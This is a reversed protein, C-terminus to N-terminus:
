YRRGYDPSPRNPDDRTYDVPRYDAYSDAETGAEAQPVSSSHSSYGGQGVGPSSGSAGDDWTAGSMDTDYRSDTPRPRRRRIRDDGPNLRGMPRETAPGNPRPPYGRDDYREPYDRPEPYDDQYYSPRRVDREDRGSLMRRNDSFRGRLSEDNDLEARMNMRAPPAGYGPSRSPRYPPPDARPADAVGQPAYRADKPRRSLVNEITLAILMGAMLLQQFSALLEMTLHGLLFVGSVLWLVAYVKDSDRGYGPKLKDLFFLAVAGVILVIGILLPVPTGFNM